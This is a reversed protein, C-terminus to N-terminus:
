DSGVACACAHRAGVKRARRAEMWHKRRVICPISAILALVSSSPEPVFGLDFQYARQLSAGSTSATMAYSVHLTFDGPPLTGSNALSGTTFPYNVGGGVQSLSGTVDLATISVFWFPQESDLTFNVSLDSIINATIGPNTIALFGGSLDVKTATIHSNQAGRALGQNSVAPMAFWTGLAFSEDFDQALVATDSSLKASAFRHQDTYIVAASGSSPGACYFAALLILTSFHLSNKNM